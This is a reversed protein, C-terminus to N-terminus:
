LDSSDFRNLNWNTNSSDIRYLIFFDLLMSTKFEFNSRMQILLKSIFCIRRFGFHLSAFLSQETEQKLQRKYDRKAILCM